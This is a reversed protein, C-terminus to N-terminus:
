LDHHGKQVNREKDLKIKKNSQFFVVEHQKHSHGDHFQQIKLSKLHQNTPWLYHIM